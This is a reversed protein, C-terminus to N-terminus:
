VWLSALLLALLISSRGAYGVGLSRAFFDALTMGATTTAVIVAWYLAPHSRRARVQAAAALVFLTAFITTGAM